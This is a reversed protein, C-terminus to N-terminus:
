FCVTAVMLHMTSCEVARLTFCLVFTLSEGFSQQQQPPQPQTQQQSPPTSDDDIQELDGPAVESHAKTQAGSHISSQVGSVIGSSVGSGIASDGPSM